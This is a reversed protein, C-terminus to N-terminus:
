KRRCLLKDILIPEFHGDGVYDADYYERQIDGDFWVTKSGETMECILGYDNMQGSIDGLVDITSHVEVTGAHATIRVANELAFRGRKFLPFPLFELIVREFRGNPILEPSLLNGFDTILDAANHREVDIYYSKGPDHHEKDHFRYWSREGSFVPKNDKLVYSEAWGRGVICTNGNFAGIKRSM